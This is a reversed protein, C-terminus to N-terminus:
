FPMWLCFVSKEVDSMDSDATGEYNGAFLVNWFFKKMKAIGSVGVAKKRKNECQIKQEVRRDHRSLTFKLGSFLWQCIINILIDFDLSM